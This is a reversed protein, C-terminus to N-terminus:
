IKNRLLKYWITINFKITNTIVQNLCNNFYYRIYNTLINKSNYHKCKMGVHFNKISKTNIELVGTNELITTSYLNFYYKRNFYFLNFLNIISSLVFESNIFLYLQKILIFHTINIYFFKIIYLLINYTLYYINIEYFFTNSYRQLKLSIYSVISLEQKLVHGQNQYNYNTFLNLFIFFTFYKM